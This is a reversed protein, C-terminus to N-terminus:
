TYVPRLYLLNFFWAILSIPLVSCFQTGLECVLHICFFLGFHIFIEFTLIFLRVIFSFFNVINYKGLSELLTWLDTYTLSSTCWGMLLKWSDCWWTLSLSAPKGAECSRELSLFPWRPMRGYLGLGPNEGSLNLSPRRGSLVTSTRWLKSRSILGWPYVGLIHFFHEM